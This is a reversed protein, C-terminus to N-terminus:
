TVSVSIASAAGPVNNAAAAKSEPLALLKMENGDFQVTLGIRPALVGREGPLDVFPQRHGNRDQEAGGGATEGQSEHM